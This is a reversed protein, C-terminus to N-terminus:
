FRLSVLPNLLCNIPVLDITRVTNPLHKGDANRKLALVPDMDDNDIINSVHSENRNEDKRKEEVTKTEPKEERVWCTVEAHGM